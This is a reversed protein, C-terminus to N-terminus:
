RTGQEAEPDAEGSEEMLRRRLPQYLFSVILLVAGLLILAIIRYIKTLSWIDMLYVKAITMGLLVLAMLRLLPRRRILGITLLAGGYVTWVVTLWLQQALRLDRLSEAPASAIQMAYHGY